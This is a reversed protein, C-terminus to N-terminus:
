KQGITKEYEAECRRGDSACAAQRKRKGADQQRIRTYRDTKREQTESCISEARKRKRRAMAYAKQGNKKEAHRQMHKRGTKRKQTGSRM